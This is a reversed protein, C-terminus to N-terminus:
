KKDIVLKEDLLALTGNMSGCFEGYEAASHRGAPRVIRSRSILSDAGRETAIQCSIFRDNRERPPGAVEKTRFGAPVALTITSEFDIPVALHFPTVRKEVSEPALWSREFVMPLAGVTERDTFRFQNKLAYRLRLLLPAQAQELNEVAFEVLDVGTGLLGLLYSRHSAPSVNALYERMFTGHVGELTLTEEVLADTLNTIAVHRSSRIVGADRAHDPVRVFRPDSADLVLADCGAVGVPASRALDSSKDTCDLFRGGNSDPLFVIMHNFQDLSPLDAWVPAHGNVLALSAPVGAALLLQQAFLAHDKCDGYRNRLTDALALPIRARRGFEIAKYSFNTQVYRAIAAIKEQENTVGTRLSRAWERPASPLETRDRINALYNTVLEPWRAAKDAIWLTPLYDAIRPQLSEWRYVMPEDVRWCLGEPLVRLPITPSTAFQVAGTDGRLFVLSERVPLGRSFTSTLLSFEEIKGLERRTITLEVSYGPQLGPVPINLVKKQSASTSTRDDLVYYDSVQGTSILIGASDQVAVRNVFIAEALPDFGIQFSSVVSVGAATITQVQFYDTTKSEKGKEFSVATLRRTYYAGYDRAYNTPPAPLPALLSPPVPVASIEEKIASNAGEGLLGSVHELFSKIENDAPAKKAALEFSDKAQRYWKLAFESRGKLYLSYASDSQDRVLERSLELADTFRGTQLYADALSYAVKANFPHKRRLEQLGTVAQAFDKKLKLVTIQLLRIEVSDQAQLFKGVEAAAHDLQKSEALLGVYEKFHSEDRFGDAFLRAYNTLALESQGLRGQLFARQAALTPQTALAPSGRNLRDLAERYKGANVWAEVLNALYLFDPKDGDLELAAQFYPASREFQRAKFYVLGIQNLLYRQVRQETPDLRTLDPQPRPTELLEVRSFADNLIADRRPSQTVMWAAILWAFGGGHLVKVRYTLEKEKDPKRVLELELGTRGKESIGRRRSIPDSDLNINLSALLGREIADAHPELKDLWVGSVVLAADERHLAGFATMPMTKALDDWPFWASDRWRVRFQLNSSVFDAKPVAGAFVPHRQYDLLDLRQIMEVASQRLAARDESRGSLVVQYVWGNTTCLWNAFSIQQGHLQADIELLLGDLGHVRRTSRRRLEVSDAVSRVHGLAVEVFRENPFDTMTSKEAIVVCNLTPQSRMFALKAAPNVKGADLQVWPRGPAQYKFNLDEFVFPKGMPPQSRSSWARQRAGAFGVIGFGAFVVAIVLTWVAQARGQQYLEKHRACERLGLIALVVAASLGGLMLWGVLVTVMLVPPFWRGMGAVAGALAWGLLLLMLSWVCKANATPRRSLRWCKWAGALLALVVGIQGVLYGTQQANM